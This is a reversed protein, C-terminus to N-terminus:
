PHMLTLARRGCRIIYISSSPFSVSVDESHSPAVAIRRGLQDYVLAPADGMVTLLLQDGQVQYSFADYDDQWEVEPLDEFVDAEIMFDCWVEAERYAEVYETPVLLRCASVDVGEFVDPTVAIPSGGIAIQQLGTCYAFAYEGIAGVTAPISIQRLSPCYYFARHAISRLGNRVRVSDLQTCFAFTGAAVRRLSAPLCVQTLASDCYFVVDQMETLTSPLTVQRLATCASFAGLGISTVGEPLVVSTLSDCGACALATVGTVPVPRFTAHSIVQDPVVLSDRYATANTSDNALYTFQASAGDATIYFYHGTGDDVKEGVGNGVVEACALSALTSLVGALM